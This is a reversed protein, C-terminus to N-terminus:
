RRTVPPGCEEYLAAVTGPALSNSIPLLATGARRKLEALAASPNDSEIEYIVVYPAAAGDESLGERLRFRQASRFGDITVVQQLHTNQYWDNYEDERGAVPRSLVILKYTPM